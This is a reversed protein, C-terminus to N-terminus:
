KEDESSVPIVERARELMKEIEDDTPTPAKITLGEGIHRIDDFSTFLGSEKLVDIADKESPIPFPLRGSTELSAALIDIAMGILDSQTRPRVGYSQELSALVKALSIVKVRASIVKSKM